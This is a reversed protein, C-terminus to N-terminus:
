EKPDEYIGPFVTRRTAKELLCAAGSLAPWLMLQQAWGLGTLLALPISLWLSLCYFCDLLQGFFGKGAVRRLEAFMSFPGAEAHLLHTVRWLILVAIVIDEIQSPFIPRHM